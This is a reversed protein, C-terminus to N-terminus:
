KAGESPSAMSKKLVRVTLERALHRRFKASAHVDDTPDSESAALEAAEAIAAADGATGVLRREASHPRVPTGGVGGLAIRADVIQGSEDRVLRAFASVVAFDGARRSFKQFASGLRGAPPAPILVQTVLEVPDKATVLPMVFFEDAGLTRRREISALEIQADLARLVVPLDAAPDGHAVSGGFTGLTRIPLHGIGSAVKSLVANPPSLQSKELQRHTTLAGISLGGQSDERVGRLGPLRAIDILVTPAALRLAMLPLLSQGGAIASAEGEFSALDALAEELSEPRLYRFGAAPSNAVAV